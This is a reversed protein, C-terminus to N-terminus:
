NRNGPNFKPVTIKQSFVVRGMIDYEIIEMESAEGPPCISGFPDRPIMELRVGGHPTPGNKSTIYKREEDGDWDDEDEDEWEEQDDEGEDWDGNEEMFREKIDETMDALTDTLADFYGDLKYYSITDVDANLVVSEPMKDKDLPHVIDRLAHLALEGFVMDTLTEEVRGFDFGGWLSQLVEDDYGDGDDGSDDFDEDETPEYSGTRDDEAIGLAVALMLLDQTPYTAELTGRDKSVAIYQGQASPTKADMAYFIICDPLRFYFRIGKQGTRRAFETAMALCLAYYDTDLNKSIWEVDYQDSPQELGVAMPPNVVGYSIESILNTFHIEDFYDTLDLHATTFQVACLAGALFGSASRDGGHSVAIELTREFDGNASLCAFLAILLVSEASKGDGLNRLYTLRDVGPSLPTNDLIYEVKGFFDEMQAIQEERRPVYIELHLKKFLRKPVKDSLTFKGEMLDRTSDLAEQVAIRLDTSGPNGKMFVNWVQSLFMGSLISPFCHTTMTMAEAVFSGLWAGHYKEKVKAPVKKMGAHADFLRISMLPFVWLLHSPGVATEVEDLLIDYKEDVNDKLIKMFLPDARKKGYLTDLGIVWSSINGNRAFRRVKKLDFDGKQMLLWAAYAKYAEDFYQIDPDIDMAKYDEARSALYSTHCFNSLAQVTYSTHNKEPSLTDLSPFTIEGKSSIKTLNGFADGLVAGMVASYLHPAVPSPMYNSDSM